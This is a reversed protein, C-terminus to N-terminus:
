SGGALYRPPLRVEPEELVIEPQPRAILEMALVEAYLKVITCAHCAAETTSMKQVSARVGDIKGVPAASHLAGHLGGFDANGPIPLDVQQLDELHETYAKLLRAKVAGDGVLVQVAAEFRKVIRSM